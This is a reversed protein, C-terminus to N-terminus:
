RTENPFSSAPRDKLLLKNKQRAYEVIDMGEVELRQVFGKGRFIKVLLSSKDPVVSLYKSLHEPFYYREIGALFRGYKCQGELYLDCGIPKDECLGVWFAKNDEKVNPDKFCICRQLSDDIFAGPSRAHNELACLLAAPVGYDVSYRLYHGSLLDRPDYGTIKLRIETGLMESFYLSFVWGTMVLLPFFVAIIPILSKKKM